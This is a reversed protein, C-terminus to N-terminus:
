PDPRCRSYDGSVAGKAPSVTKFLNPRSCKEAIKAAGATIQPEGKVEATLVIKAIGSSSYSM